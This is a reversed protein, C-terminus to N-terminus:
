GQRWCLCINEFFNRQKSKSHPRINPSYKERTVASEVIAPPHSAEKKITSELTTSAAPKEGDRKQPLLGNEVTSPKRLQEYSPQNISPLPPLKKDSHKSQHSIDYTSRAGKVDKVNQVNQSAIKPQTTTTSCGVARSTCPEQKSATNSEPSPNRPPPRDSKRVIFSHRLIGKPTIRKKADWQLMARMLAICERREETAALKEYKLHSMKAQHLFRYNFSRRYKHHEEGWYEVPTKLIWQDSNSKKFFEESKVGADVLYDPAPGLVDTYYCLNEYESRGPFIVCNLLMKGMVCGLSWIDLAASYPLGLILEPAKYFLCQNLTKNQKTHLALGFDILKVQLPKKRQNVVMINNTKLDSHIIQVKKLGELATALQQIVTRIEQLKLPHRLKIYEKLNIDCMEFVLCSNTSFHHFKIINKQDLKHRMLYRMMEAEHKLEHKGKAIKVAVDQQTYTDFCKLVVASGGEGLYQNIEFRQPIQPSAQSRKSSSSSTPFSGM